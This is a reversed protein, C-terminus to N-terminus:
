IRNVESHYNSQWRWKQKHKRENRVFWTLYEFVPKEPPETQKNVPRSYLV